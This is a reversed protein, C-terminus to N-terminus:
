PQLQSCAPGAGLLRVSPSASTMGDLRIRVSTCNNSESKERLRHDPDGVTELIYDGDPVGSVEIYQDPLYYDYIDGWGRTIGQVYNDSTADTSAPFLCDPAIYTRPGDGKKGWFDIETDALCFSVKRGAAALTVPITRATKRQRVPKSGSRQGTADASWLRSLGFSTFHYHGHTGHYEVQGVVSEEFHTPSDSWYTRQLVDSRSPTTGRPVSFRLEMAGEGTNAFIQDFRLCRRAGEEDVESQYCSPFAASITDFFIGVPDFSFNRQPRAVMDPLLARVPHVKPEYEV